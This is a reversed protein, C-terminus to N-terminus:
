KDVSESCQSVMAMDIENRAGRKDNRASAFSDKLANAGLICLVGRERLRSRWFPWEEGLRGRTKVLGGGSLVGAACAYYM